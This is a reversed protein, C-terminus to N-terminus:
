APLEKKELWIELPENGSAELLSLSEEWWDGINSSLIACSECGWSGLASLNGILRLKWSAGM